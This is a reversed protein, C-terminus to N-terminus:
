GTRARVGWILSSRSASLCSSRWHTAGAYLYYFFYFLFHTFLSFREPMFLALTHCRCIFLLVFYFFMVFIIYSSRSASPMSRAHPVQVYFFLFIFLVFIISSSRSTRLCTFLTLAHLAHSCSTRLCSSRSHTHTHTTLAGSAAV